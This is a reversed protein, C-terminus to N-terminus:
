PSSRLVVTGNVRGTATDRTFSLRQLQKQVESKGLWAALRASDVGKMNISYTSKAADAADRTETVTAGPSALEREASPPTIAVISAVAPVTRLYAAQERMTLLKEELLVLTAPANLVTQWAPRILLAILVACFVVLGMVIVLMRERATAESWRQQLM